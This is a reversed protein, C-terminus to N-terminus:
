AVFSPSPTCFVAFAGLAADTIAYQTHKGTRDDPLSAWQQHLAQVLDDFALAETM